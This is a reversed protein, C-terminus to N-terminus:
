LTSLGIRQPLNSSRASMLDHRVRAELAELGPQVALQAVRVLQM